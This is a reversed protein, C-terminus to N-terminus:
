RIVTFRESVVGDKTHLVASYIGSPLGILEISVEGPTLNDRRVAIRGSLDTIYLTGNGTDTVRLHLCDGSVPNEIASIGNSSPPSAVGSQPLGQYYFVEGWYDGVTLDLTGDGNLDAAFPYIEHSHTILSDGSYAFLDEPPAYRFPASAGLNRLWAVHSTENQRYGAVLDELLDGDLDISQISARWGLDVQGAETSLTFCSDNFSYSEPTGTNIYIYIKGGQSGVLLDLLGDNDYDTLVPSPNYNVLVQGNCYM